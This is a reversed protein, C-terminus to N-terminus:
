FTSTNTYNVLFVTSGTRKYKLNHFLFSGTFWFGKWIFHLFWKICWFYFQTRMQERFLRLYDFTLCVRKKIHVLYGSIWVSNWILTRCWTPYFSKIQVWDMLWTPQKKKCSSNLYVYGTKLFTLCVNLCFVIHKFLLIKKIKGWLIFNIITSLKPYNCPFIYILYSEKM